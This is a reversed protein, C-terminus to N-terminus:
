QGLNGMIRKVYKQTESYPPIGGYKRVAGPGANYAALAKPLDGDFQNLMKKLYKAGGNLNQVPDFPDDVGVERATGPMLQTLGQAGVKSEALPNFGSEQEVLAELVKPNLNHGAAIKAAMTRLEGESQAPQIDLGEIGMPRIAGGLSGNPGITGSLPNQAVDLADTFSMGGMGPPPPPPASEARRPSLSDLRSQLEAMRSRVGDIGLAM